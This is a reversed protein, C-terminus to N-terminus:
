NSWKGKVEKREVPQNHDSARENGTVPRKSVQALANKLAQGTFLRGM